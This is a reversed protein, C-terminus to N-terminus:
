NEKRETKIIKEKYILRATIDRLTKEFETTKAMYEDIDKGSLYKVNGHIIDHALTYMERYWRTYKKDLVKSAVFARDLMDGVHEPSPPVLGRAMLAAHGADVMAWYLHEISNVIDFKARSIHLPSRRLTTYIAEPSPRLRGKALLVKLPEFFGGFDILTQGYRLMNIAAPEGEKIEEWFTSLTVTNIHFRESNKDKEVIKKLEERYWAILQEDWQISCDDIIILIDIDSGQSDLKKAASGFLVISKIAEKFRSYTNLAFNHAIDFESKPHAVKRPKKTVKKRPSIKKKKPKIEIKPEPAKLKKKPTVKKKPQKKSTAKKKLKIKKKPKPVVLDDKPDSELKELSPLEPVKLDKKSPLEPLKRDAM